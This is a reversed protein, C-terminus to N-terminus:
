SLPTYSRGNSPSRLSTFQGRNVLGSAMGTPEMALTAQHTRSFNSPTWAPDLFFAVGNWQSAFRLWWDVDKATDQTLPIHKELGDVSHATDLLRRLFIRGAPIVKCAFALKGILFLLQRKTRTRHSAYLHSFQALEELLAALKGAPLRAQMAITDLEIGLITLITAPGLVKEPKVPAGVAQCLLLM